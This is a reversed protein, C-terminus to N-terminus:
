EQRFTQKRVNISVHYIFFYLFFRWHFSLKLHHVSALPAVPPSLSVCHAPSYCLCRYVRLLWHSHLISSEFQLLCVEVVHSSIELFM